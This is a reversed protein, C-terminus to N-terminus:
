LFCAQPPGRLPGSHPGRTKNLLYTKQINSTSSILMIALREKVSKLNELSKMAEQNRRLIDNLALPLPYTFFHEIFWQFVPPGSLTATVNERSKKNIFYM